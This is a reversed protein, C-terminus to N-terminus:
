RTLDDLALRLATEEKPASLGVMTRTFVVGDMSRVDNTILSELSATSRTRVKLLYDMEGTVHHCELVDDLERIRQLFAQTHVPKDLRIAIFATIPRNVRQPDLIAAYRRVIGRSELKKVREGVTPASLGAPTGCCVVTGCTGTNLVIRVNDIMWFWGYTGQYNFKVKVHEVGAAVASLDIEVHAATGPDSDQPAVGVTYDWSQVAQSGWTAGGDTSVWISAEDEGIELSMYLMDLSLRVSTAASCDVEPPILSANQHYPNGSNDEGFYDSDLIEFPATMGVPAEWGGPNLTTWTQDLEGGTEVQATWGTPPDGTAFDETLTPSREGVRVSFPFDGRDEDAQLHLNFNLIDGCSPSRSLLVTAPTSSTFNKRTYTLNESDPPAVTGFSVTGSTVTVGESGSTVTGTVNHGDLTGDNRVILSFALAEGPDTVGDDANGAGSCSDAFRWSNLGLNVDCEVLRSIEVDDVYWGEGSYGSGTSFAFTVTRLDTFSALDLDHLVWTRDANGYTALVTTGVMIQCSGSENSDVWDWWRLHYGHGSAGPDFDRSIKTDTGALCSATCTPADHAGAKWANSASHSECSDIAFESGAATVTSWGNIGGEAGDPGFLYERKLTRFTFHDGGNDDTTTGSAGTSTVSFFHLRCGQLGTLTLSHTTVYAGDSVSDGLSATLGYDVRSDAAENTTWTVTATTDTVDSVQVDTIVPGAWFASSLAAIWVAVSFLVARTGWRKARGM